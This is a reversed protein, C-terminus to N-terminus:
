STPRRLPDQRSPTPPHAQDLRSTRAVGTRPFIPKWALVSDRVSTSFHRTRTETEEKRGEKRKQAASLCPIHAVRSRSRFVLFLPPSDLKSPQVNKNLVFNSTFCVNTNRGCTTLICVADVNSTEHEQRGMKNRERDKQQREGEEVNKAERGEGWAAPPRFTHARTHTHTGAAAAAATKGGRGRRVNRHTHM